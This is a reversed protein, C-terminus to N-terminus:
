IKIFKNNNLLDMMEQMIFVCFLIIKENGAIDDDCFIILKSIEVLLKLINWIGKM